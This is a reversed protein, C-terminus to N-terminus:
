LAAIRIAAATTSLRARGRPSSLRAITADLTEIRDIMGRSLADRASFMRGEGYQEGRVADVSVNRGRAILRTMTDYAQDVMSQIQARAEDTLPEASNGEVKFRGAHVFTPRRGATALEASRDEHVAVVGVSGVMASPTAVFETAASGIWYAASAAQANAVAVIPKTKRAELIRDALEPTGAVAGGASDIDLVVAAINPNSVAESIASALMESSTGGPGSVNRVMHARHAITGYVPLVAVSGSQSAASQRKAAAEMPAAGIAAQLAEGSLRTGDNWRSLIAVMQAFAATDIAWPQAALAAFLMNVM